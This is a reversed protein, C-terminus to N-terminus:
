PLRYVPYPGAHAVPTLNRVWELVPALPRPMSRGTLLTPSIALDDTGIAARIEDDTMAGMREVPLKRFAFSEARPDTGFYVLTIGRGTGERHAKAWDDLAFLGQGWDLNSDSLVRDGREGVVPNFYRLRDPGSRFCAATQWACAVAVFAIGLRRRPGTTVAVASALLAFAVLPFVLRIGIQVRCNFSFLFLAVVVWGAPGFFARARFVAAGALLLLAPPTLKAALAVPFYYWVARPHWEGLVFTGHGRSNHKVQQALAEGANTFVTLRESVRVMLDHTTGSPLGQAWEVFTREPQWDSGCYAFTVAMGIAFQAVFDRRHTATADWVHRVKGWLGPASFPRLAGSAVLRHTSLMFWVIPVFALASAKCLLAVGFALGPVLVRRRWPGDRGALFHVTAAFVGATVAIDTTALGAHALLNPETALLLLTVRGAGPGGLLTGLKLGYALLTFWFVLTMRRAVPLMEGFDRKPDFPEGRSRERLFLPLTQLDIPAPMTGAKMLLKNSGTRWSTLGAELYFPEDFTASLQATSTTIEYSSVLFVVALLAISTLRSPAMM